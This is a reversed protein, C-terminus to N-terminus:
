EPEIVTGDELQVSKGHSLPPLHRKLNLGEVKNVKDMEVKWRSQAPECVYSYCIKGQDNRAEIPTVKIREDDFYIRKDEFLM